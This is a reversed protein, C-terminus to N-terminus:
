QVGIEESSEILSDNFVLRKITAFTTRRPSVLKILHSDFHFCNMHMEMDFSDFARYLEYRIRSFLKTFEMDLTTEINWWDELRTRKKEIHFEKLKLKLNFPIELFLKNASIEIDKYRDWLVNAIQTFEHHKNVPNNLFFRKKSTFINQCIQLQRQFHTMITDKSESLLHGEKKVYIKKSYFSTCFIFDESKPMLVLPFYPPRLFYDRDKIKVARSANKRFVKIQRGVEPRSDSEEEDIDLDDPLSVSEDFLAAKTEMAVKSGNNQTELTVKSDNHHRMAIVVISDNLRTNMVVTQGSCHTVLTEMAVMTSLAALLTFVPSLKHFLRRM